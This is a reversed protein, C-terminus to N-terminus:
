HLDMRTFPRGQRVREERVEVILTETLKRFNLFFLLFIIILTVPVVIELRAIARELYEQGGSWVVYHGPPFEHIYDCSIKSTGRAYM